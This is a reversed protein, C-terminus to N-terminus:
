RSGGQMKRRYEQAAKAAADSPSSAATTPQRAGPRRAMGVARRMWNRWTADWSAKRANAGAAAIWHDRFVETEALVDLDPVEKAAWHLLEADPQWDEPLRQGTAKRKSPASKGAAAQRDTARERASAGHLPTVAETSPNFGTPPETARIQAEKRPFVPRKGPFFPGRENLHGNEPRNGNQEGERGGSVPKLGQRQQTESRVGHDIYDEGEFTARRQAEKHRHDIWPLNWVIVQATRGVRKGTDVIWGGDRLDALARSVTKRDLWTEAEMAARSLFVEGAANAHDALVLLLMRHKANLGDPRDMALASRLADISM